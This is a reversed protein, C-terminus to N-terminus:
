PDRNSSSQTPSEEKELENRAKTLFAAAESDDPRQQTAVELDTAQKEWQKLEGYIKARQHRADVDTPDAVLRRSLYDLAVGLRDDSPLGMLTEAPGFTFGPTDKEVYVAGIGRAGPADSLRCFVVYAGSHGAGSCWRKTGNLVVSDGEVTARTRLDTLATGADPESMSIAVLTEGRVSARVVRDALAPTGYAQVIRVPGVSAEFVPFAVASSIKAFQELVILADLHTLGLGGYSEPTNIGLFGMEAYAQLMEPPVPTNTAECHTAVAPLERQAFSRASDQLARQDDSFNFDM